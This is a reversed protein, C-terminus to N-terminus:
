RDRLRMVEDTSLHVFIGEAEVTVDQGALLRGASHIRRGATRELWGEYRLPTRLPTPKRFQLRLHATPGAAGARLNAVSLM